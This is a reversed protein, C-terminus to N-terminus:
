CAALQFYFSTSICDSIARYWAFHFYQFTRFFGLFVPIQLHTIHLFLIYLITDERRVRSLDRTRAGNSGNYFRNPPIAWNPSRHTRLAYTVLELRTIEMEDSTQNEASFRAKEYGGNPSFETRYVDEKRIRYWKAIRFQKGSISRSFFNKWMDM